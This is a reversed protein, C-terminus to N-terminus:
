SSVRMAEAPPFMGAKMLLGPQPRAVTEETWLAAEIARELDIGTEVGSRELMYVLDELPINGTAKPAFPCGGAGAFSADLSAAGAEIAAWANALGTNRTNHFHCRIPFEPFRDRVAAVREMVDGPGAAGITDALGIEFPQQEALAEVVSLLRDVPVEGEFPCGFAAGVTVGADVQGRAAKAIDKWVAVTEFTPAGQNRQNFSDTAVVVVNIEDVGSQLAREFGRRNLVLGILRVDGRHPLSAILEEGGAMQPVRKPNVFSAVEMRRVGAAISKEILARKEELSLIKTENQIGDRATVDIIEVKKAM